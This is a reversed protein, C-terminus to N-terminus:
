WDEFFLIRGQRNDAPSHMDRGLLRRDPSKALFRLRTNNEAAVSLSYGEPIHLSLELKGKLKLFHIQMRDVRQSYSFQDTPLFFIFVM